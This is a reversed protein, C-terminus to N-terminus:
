TPERKLVRSAPNSSFFIIYLNHFPFISQGSTPLSAKLKFARTMIENWSVWRFLIYNVPFWTRQKFLLSLLFVANTSSSVNSSDPISGLPQCGSEDQWATQNLDQHLGRETSFGPKWRRSLQAWYPGVTVLGSMHIQSRGLWLSFLQEKGWFASLLQVAKNLGYAKIWCNWMM